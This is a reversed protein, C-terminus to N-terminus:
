IEISIGHFKTGYLDTSTNMGHKQLVESTRRRMSDLDLTKLYEKENKMYRIVTNLAKVPIRPAKM